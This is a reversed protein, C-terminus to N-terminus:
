DLPALGQCACLGALKLRGPPDNPDITSTSMWFYVMGLSDAGSTPIVRPTRTADPQLLANVQTAQGSLQQNQERLTAMTTTADLDPTPTRDLNVELTGCSTLLFLLVLLFVRPM